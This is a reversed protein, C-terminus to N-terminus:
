FEGFGAVAPGNFFDAAAALQIASCNRRTVSRPWRLVIDLEPFYTPLKLKHILFGSIKWTM